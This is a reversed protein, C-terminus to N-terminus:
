PNLSNEWQRSSYLKTTTIAEDRTAHFCGVIQTGLQYAAVGTFLQSLSLSYDAVFGAYDLGKLMGLLGLIRDRDDSSQLTSSQFLFRPSDISNGYRFLHFDKIWLPVEFSPFENWRKGSINTWTITIKECHVLIDRSLVLEQLVWLRQFYLRRFFKRMPRAFNDTDPSSFSRFQLFEMAADSGDAEDRLLCSVSECKFLNSVDHCSTTIKRQHKTPKYLSCRDVASSPLTATENTAPLIWLELHNASYELKKRYLPPSM